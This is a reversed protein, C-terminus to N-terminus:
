EIALEDRDFRRFFMSVLFFQHGIVSWSEQLQDVGNADVNAFAGDSINM